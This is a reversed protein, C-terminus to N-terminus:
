NISIKTYNNSCPNGDCIYACKEDLDYVMASITGFADMEDQNDDGHACICNPYNIHNRTIEFLKDITIKGSNQDLYDNIVQFRVYSGGHSLWNQTEFHKMYDSIYHNTHAAYYKSFPVLYYNTASVEICWAVDDSSSLQYVMGCARRAFVIRGFAEGIREANLVKRIIFPYIVGNRTDNSVIKNIVVSIGNNSIGNIGLVGALSYVVITRGDNYKIKLIVNYKSYYKEMDFTQGLLNKSEESANKKINFTTCGWLQKDFLRSGTYLTRLDELELFSNLFLIDRFELGSGDAIGQMEEVLESAYEKLYPINKEVEYLLSEKDCKIPVYRMHLDFISNYFDLILDKCCEGYKFGIQYHTGSLEIIRM